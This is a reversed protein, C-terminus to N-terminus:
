NLILLATHPFDANRRLPFFCLPHKPGHPLPYLQTQEVFRWFDWCFFPLFLIQSHGRCPSLGWIGALTPLLIGQSSKPASSPDPTASVAWAERALRQMSLEKMLGVFKRWFLSKGSLTSGPIGRWPVPTNHPICFGSHPGTGCTPGWSRSLQKGGDGHLEWGHFLNIGVCAILATILRSYHTECPNGNERHKHFTGLQAPIEEDMLEPSEAGRPVM